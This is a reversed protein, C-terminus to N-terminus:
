IECKNFLSNSIMRCGKASRILGALSLLNLGVAPSLDELKHNGIQTSSDLSLANSRM